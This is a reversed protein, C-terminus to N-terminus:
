LKADADGRQIEKLDLLEIGLRQLINERHPRINKKCVVFFDFDVHNFLPAFVNHQSHEENCDCYYRTIQLLYRQRIRDNKVEIYTPKKNRFGFYDVKSRKSDRRIYREKTEGIIIKWGADFFTPFFFEELYEKCINENKFPM